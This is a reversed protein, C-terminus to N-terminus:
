RVLIFDPDAVFCDERETGAFEDWTMNHRRGDYPDVFSIETGRESGDGWMRYVTIAHNNALPNRLLGRSDTVLPYNFGGLIVMRGRHLFERLSQMWRELPLQRVDHLTVGLAAALRRSNCLDGRPLSGDARLTVHNHAATQKVDWVMLHRGNLTGVAMALAAAWCDNPGPQRIHAIPHAISFHSM